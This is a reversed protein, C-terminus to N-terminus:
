QERTVPNGVNIWQYVLSDPRTNCHINVILDAKSWAETWLAYALREGTAPSGVNIWQYVLSDPRTNCHINVILDAKSWAETWLAYALRETTNGEPMDARVRGVDLDDIWSLYKQHMFALPNGVPIGIVAGRLGGPSLIERMVKRIVEIGQIEIGHQTSMLLLTPGERSGNMVLVPIDISVNNVLEVGRIVGKKLEGRGVTVDGVELKEPM